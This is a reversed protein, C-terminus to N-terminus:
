LEEKNKNLLLFYNIVEKQYPMLEIGYEICDCIEPILIEESIHTYPHLEKLERIKDLILNNPRTM